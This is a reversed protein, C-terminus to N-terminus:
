RILCAALQNHIDKHVLFFPLERSMTATSPWPRVKLQPAQDYITVNVMKNGLSRATTIRRVVLKFDPHSYGRPACVVRVFCLIRCSILNRYKPLIYINCFRLWRCVSVALVVSAKRIGCLNTPWRFIERAVFANLVWRVGGRASLALAALSHRRHPLLSLLLLGGRHAM